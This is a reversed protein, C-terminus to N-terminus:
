RLKLYRNGPLQRVAGALELGILLAALSGPDLGSREALTDAAVPDDSGFADLLAKEERTLPQAAPKERFAAPDTGFDWMLERVIADASLVLQAKRNRILHNTGASASDTARGPVAMVTREYGDAYHATVLSGGTDPSEVVLCGASLGAILRNRALYFTGNQRTQSHLESVLAGGRDLLDRALATHQTPMIDPLANALVAVTPVGAALAARHAAADIGFALGSVICLGPIREALGGVLRDCMSQGYPTARRTGVVSLCRASLAEVNGRIYLVHPYDPIERLLRPYEADTSAVITIGNRRCYDMEREAAPFGKRRVLHQALDPRLGARDVLEDAPTGFIRRADGFRDLLHAAGKVGIGPTMQLAIDEITM